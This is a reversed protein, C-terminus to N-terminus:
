PAAPCEGAIEEITAALVPHRAALPRAELALECVLDTREAAQAAQMAVAYARPVKRNSLNFLALDLARQPDAGPGAFFESGHDAFAARHRELLVEYRAKASAILAASDDVGLEGLFGSPEPDGVERNVLTRLRARALEGQDGQAELEALHVTAVVYVDLRSVADRYLPLALDPRDAAEAWMVGRQFANWAITFPSVDRYTDLAARYMADAEEFRGLAGLVGALLVYSDYSAHAEVRAQARPLLEAPDEGVALGLTIRANELRSISAGAAEARDLMARAEEFRHVALLFSSREMLTTVTAPTENALAEATLRDIELFDDYSGMMSARLSLFALLRSRASPLNSRLLHQRAGEISANLNGVAIEVPTTPRTTDIPVSQPTREDVEVPPPPEEAEKGEGCASGFLVLLWSLALPRLTRQTM